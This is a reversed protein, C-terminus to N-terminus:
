PADWMVEYKEGTHLAKYLRIDPGHKDDTYFEQRATRGPSELVLGSQSGGVAGFETFLMAAIQGDGNRLTFDAGTRNTGVSARSKQNEDFFELQPNQLGKLQPNRVGEQDEVMRLRARIKGDNDRLIFENAEVTKKQAAQGMLLLSAVLVLAVAGAQKFKRNQKELKEIRETLASVEPATSTM